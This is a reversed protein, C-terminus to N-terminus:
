CLYVNKFGQEKFEKGLLLFDDNIENSQRSIMVVKKQTRLLKFFTYIVNLLFMFVKLVLVKM